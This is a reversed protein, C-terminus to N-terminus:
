LQCSYQCSFPLITVLREIIETKVDFFLFLGFFFFIEVASWGYHQHNIAVCQIFYIGTSQMDLLLLLLLALTSTVFFLFFFCFLLLFTLCIIFRGGYIFKNKNCFYLLLLLLLLLLFILFFFYVFNFCWFKVCVWEGDYVNFVSVSFYEWCFPVFIIYSWGVLWGVLWGDIQEDMLSCLDM